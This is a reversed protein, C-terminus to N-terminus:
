ACPAVDSADFDERNSGTPFAIGPFRTGAPSGTSWAMYATLMQDLPTRVNHIIDAITHEIAKPVPSLVFFWQEIGAPHLPRSSVKWPKSTLWSQTEVELRSLLCEAWDLKSHPTALQSKLSLMNTLNTRLSLQWIHGHGRSTGM